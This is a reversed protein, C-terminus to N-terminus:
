GMDQEAIFEIDAIILAQAPIRGPIKSAVDGAGYVPKPSCRNATTM